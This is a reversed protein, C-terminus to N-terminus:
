QIVDYTTAIQLTGKKVVADDVKSSIEWPSGVPFSVHDFEANRNKAQTIGHGITLCYYYAPDHSTDTCISDTSGIHDKHACYYYKLSKQMAGAVNIVYLSPQKDPNSMFVPGQTADDGPYECTLLSNDVFRVQVGQPDGVGDPEIRIAGTVEVLTPVPPLAPKGARGAVAIAGVVVLAPLVIPLARRTKRM